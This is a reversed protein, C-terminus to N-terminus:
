IGRERQLLIEGVPSFFCYNEPFIEAGKLPNPILFTLPFFIPPEDRVHLFM